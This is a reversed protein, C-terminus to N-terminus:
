TPPAASALGGREVEVVADLVEGVSIANVGRHAGPWIVRHAMRDPPPGWRQPSMPGFLLVSPTRYATALHGVGTDGCVVIRAHAVLAALDGVDLCGALVRDPALGATRAVSAALDVDGASGTIVVDHGADTLARATEAFRAAAWRRDPAKAGPHIVTAGTPLGRAAPRTLDLHAVDAHAGYWEVLRGWRPVEHEDANWVPGQDFDAAACAYAWMTAPGAARLLQHSQPGSGHLNVALRPRLSVVRDVQDLDDVELLRDVVGTLRALPELWAPAALVLTEGPARCRHVARLAPVAACLDGIGSARLVIIM